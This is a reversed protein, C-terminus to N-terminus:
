KYPEQKSFVFTLTGLKVGWKSMTARNIVINDDQLFLWDDFKVRWKRGDVPLNMEYQWNFANGARKGKAVGIVDDATGKYANNKLIDITWIRKDVSGDDYIFDEDLILQNNVISGHMTVKFSRKLNGFRDEFIGWGQTKGQFYDEIKFEPKNNKFDNVKMSSCGTLSLVSFFLLWLYRKSIM